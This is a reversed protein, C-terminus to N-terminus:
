PVQAQEAQAVNLPFRRFLEGGLVVEIAYKGPREFQVNQFRSIVCHGSGFDPLTFTVEPSATVLQNEENVIRSQERFQGVGTCWQNAIFFVPYLVPFKQSTILNFAGLFMLKGNREQRVDDCLISYQLEPKM